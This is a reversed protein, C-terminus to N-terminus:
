LMYIKNKLIFFFAKEKAYFMKCFIGRGKNEFSRLSESEFLHFKQYSLLVAIGCKQHFKFRWIFKEEANTHFIM